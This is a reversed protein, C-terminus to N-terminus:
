SVALTSATVIEGFRAFSTLAAKHEEATLASMADEVFVLEYGHDSAARATSEVGMNTAVGALALVAVGRSRLQEHLDTEHFAGVTHKVVVVDSEHRLGDVFGSGAPQEAVNPREVRVLVVTAGAGRFSAALSACTAIIETGARPALPQSVVRPMLDILVLASRSAEFEQVRGVSDV